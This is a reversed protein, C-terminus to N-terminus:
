RPKNEPRDKSTAKPKTPPHQRESVRSLRAELDDDFGEPIDRPKPIGTPGFNVSQELLPSPFPPQESATVLITRSDVEPWDSEEHYGHLAKTIHFESVLALPYGSFQTYGSAESFRVFSALPLASVEIITNKELLPGVTENVKAPTFGTESQRMAARVSLHDDDQDQFADNLLQTWQLSHYVGEGSTEMIRKISKEDTARFSQKFATCSEVVDTLDVGNKELQGITQNALIFHLRMSRAQELFLSINDSVVRQFEDIFVYVRRNEGKARRSAATLLSFLALKAIKPTTAQEQVSSLYFYAVQNERLMSPLDIQESLADTGVQANEEGAKVDAATVNATVNMPGIDALKEVIRAVHRAKDWDDASGIGRFANKDSVFRHLEKFSGIHKRHRKLYGGLVLDNLTSFYGRGYDDGYDLALSHLIGETLQNTTMQSVHSQALPNFVFSSRGTINTFWKFPTGVADAEERAAEFLTKDGKLDIILISCDERAILQAVLPAIGISTKRSGTDGLIHGHKHLLDRHLLVPYDGELAAGLYYHEQELPDDSWVIREVRNDWPTIDRKGAALEKLTRPPPVEYADPAELAAHYRYLLRGGTFWLVAFLVAFPGLWCLLLVAATAVFFNTATQKLGNWWSASQAAQREVKKSEIYQARAAPALQAAFKEEIPFLRFEEAKPEAPKPAQRYRDILVQPSSVSVGVLATTLIALTVGLAADRSLHPRLAETPFRFLGAAHVGHRNYCVFTTLARWAVKVTETLPAQPAEGLDNMLLWLTPLSLLFGLVGLMPAYSALTTGEASILVGYGLAFALALAAFSLRFIGVEPCQRPTKETPVFWWYRQYRRLTRLRVRENSAMFFCSQLTIFYSLLASVGVAIGFNLLYASTTTKAYNVLGFLVSVGIVAVSGAIHTLAFRRTIFRWYATGLLGVAILVFLPVGIALPLIAIIRLGFGVVIFLLTVISVLRLTTAADRAPTTVRTRYNLGTTYASPPLAKSQITVRTDKLRRRM